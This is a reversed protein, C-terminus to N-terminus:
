LTDEVTDFPALVASELDAALAEPWAVRSGALYSWVGLTLCLAVCSGAVWWLVRNWFAWVERAPPPETLRALIRKEFAYPVTDPPPNARAAAILHRHLDAINM